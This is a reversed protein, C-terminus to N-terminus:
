FKKITRLNMAKKATNFKQANEVRIANNKEIKVYNKFKAPAKAAPAANEPIHKYQYAKIAAFELPQKLDTGEDNIAFGYYSNQFWGIVANYYFENSQEYYVGQGLVGMYPEYDEEDATNIWTLTPGVIGEEQSAGTLYDYHQQASVLQTWPSCYAYEEKTQDFEKPDVVAVFGAGVPAGYAQKYKPADSVVLYAPVDISVLVGAGTLYGESSIGLGESFLFAYAAGLLCPITDGNTLPVWITDNNFIILNEDKDTYSNWVECGAWTIEAYPDYVTVVCTDSQYGEASAIINVKGVGIGYVYGEEDVQAIELNSSTWTIAVDKVPSLVAFLQYKYGQPLALEDESLVVVPTTTPENGGQEEKDKKECSLFSLTTAAMIAMLFYKKM